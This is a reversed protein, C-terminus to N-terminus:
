QPKVVPPRPVAPRKPRTCFCHGRMCRQSHCRACRAVTLSAGCYCLVGAMAYWRGKQRFPVILVEKM